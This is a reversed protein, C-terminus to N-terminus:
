RGNRYGHRKSRADCSTGAPRLPALSITLLVVRWFGWLREDEPGPPVSSELRQSETVDRITALLCREGDLEIMEAFLELELDEQKLVTTGQYRFGESPPLDGAFDPIM